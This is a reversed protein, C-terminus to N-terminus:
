LIMQLEELLGPIDRTVWKKEKKKRMEREEV